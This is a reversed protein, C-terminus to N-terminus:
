TYVGGLQKDQIYESTIDTSPIDVILPGSLNSEGRCNVSRVFISYMLDYQLHSITLSCSITRCTESSVSCTGGSCSGGVPAPTVTVSYSTVPVEIGSPSWQITASNAQTDSLMLNRPQPPFGVLIFNISIFNSIISSCCHICAINHHSHAINVKEDVCEGSVFIM